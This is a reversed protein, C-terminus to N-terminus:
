KDFTVKPAMTGTRRVRGSGSGGAADAALAGLHPVRMFRCLMLWSVTGSGDVDQTPRTRMM